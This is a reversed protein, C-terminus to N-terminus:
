IRREHQGSPRRQGQIGGVREVLLKPLLEFRHEIACTEVHRDHAFENGVNHQNVFLVDLTRHVGIEGQLLRHRLARAGRPERRQERLRLAELALLDAEYEAAAVDIRTQEGRDHHALEFALLPDHREAERDGVPRPQEPLDRRHEALKAGVDELDLVAAGGAFHRFALHAMRVRDAFPALTARGIDSDGWDRWVGHRLHGLHYDRLTGAAAHARERSSAASASASPKSDSQTKSWKWM